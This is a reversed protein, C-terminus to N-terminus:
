SHDDQQVESTRKGVISIYVNLDKGDLSHQMKDIIIEFNETLLSRVTASKEADVTIHYITKGDTM